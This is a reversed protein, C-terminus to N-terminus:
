LAAQDTVFANGISVIFWVYLALAQGEVIVRGDLNRFWPFQPSYKQYNTELQAFYPWISWWVGSYVIDQAIFVECM